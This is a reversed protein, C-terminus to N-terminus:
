GLAGNCFQLASILYGHCVVFVCHADPLDFDALLDSGHPYDSVPQLRALTDDGFAALVNAGARQHVRFCEDFDPSGILIDLNKMLRGITAITMAIRVTMTPATVMAVRGIACNGFM